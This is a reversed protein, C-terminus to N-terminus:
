SEHEVKFELLSVHRIWGIGQSILTFFLVAVAEEPTKGIGVPPSGPLDELDAKYQISDDGAKQKEIKIIM